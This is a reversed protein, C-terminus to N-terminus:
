DDLSERRGDVPLLDVHRVADDMVPEARHKDGTRREILRHREQLVVIVVGLDVRRRNASGFDQRAVAVREPDEEPEEHLLDKRDDHVPLVLGAEGPETWIAGM